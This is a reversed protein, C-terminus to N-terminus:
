VELSWSICNANLDTEQLNLWFLHFMACMCLVNILFIWFLLRCLTIFAHLIFCPWTLTFPLYYFLTVVPSMKITSKIGFPAYVMKNIDMMVSCHNLQMLLKYVPLVKKLLCIFHLRSLRWISNDRPCQIRLVVCMLGLMCLRGCEWNVYLLGLMCLWGYEWNVCLLGHVCDGVNEIGCV